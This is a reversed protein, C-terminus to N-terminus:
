IVVKKKLCVVDRNNVHNLPNAIAPIDKRTNINSSIKNESYIVVPVFIDYKLIWKNIRKILMVKIVYIAQDDTVFLGGIYEKLLENNYISSGM